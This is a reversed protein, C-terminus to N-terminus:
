IQGSIAPHELDPFIPQSYYVYVYKISYYDVAMINGSTIEQLVIYNSGVGILFGARETVISSSVLQEVKVYRGIQTTLFGNLYQISDFDLTQEYQPPVMPSSPVNYTPTSSSLDNLHDTYGTMQEYVLPMSEISVYGPASYINDSRLPTTPITHRSVNTGGQTTNQSEESAAASSTTMGSANVLVTTDDESVTPAETTNEELQIKDGVAVQGRRIMKPTITRTGCPTM